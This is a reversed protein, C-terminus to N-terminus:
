SITKMADLASSRLLLDNSHDNIIEDLCDKSLADDIEGLATISAMARLINQDKSCKVLLPIGEKGLQRLLQVVTLILEPTQDKFSAELVEILNKPFPEDPFNIALQVLVKMCSTRLLRNDSKVFIDLIRPAIKMGFVGLAKVCVRRIALDKNSLNDLLRQFSEEPWYKALKLYAQKNINPNPHKLDEFLIELEEFDM